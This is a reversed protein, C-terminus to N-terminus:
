AVKRVAPIFTGVLATGFTLAGALSILVGVDVHDALAGSLAVM